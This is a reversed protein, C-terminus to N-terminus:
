HCVKASSVVRSSMRLHGRWGNLGKAQLHFIMLVMHKLKLYIWQLHQLNIWNFHDAQMESPSHHYWYNKKLFCVRLYGVSLSAFSSYKTTLLVLRSQMKDEAWLESLLICKSKNSEHIKPEDKGKYQQMEESPNGGGRREWKNWHNTSPFFSIIGPDTKKGFPYKRGVAKREAMLLTYRGVEKM